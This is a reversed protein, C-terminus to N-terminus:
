GIVEDMEALSTSVDGIATNVITQVEEATVAGINAPTIGQNIIYAKTNATDILVRILSGSTFLGTKGSLSNGCTDYFPYAVSNIQVGEVESCDCPALITLEEGNVAPTTRVVGNEQVILNAM